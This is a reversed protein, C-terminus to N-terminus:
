PYAGAGHPDFFGVHLDHTYLVLFSAHAFPVGKMTQSGQWPEMEDGPKITYWTPYRGEPGDNDTDYAGEDGKAPLLSGIQHVFVYMVRPLTRKREEAETNVCDQLFKRVSPSAYLVLGRPDASARLFIYYRRDIYEKNQVCLPNWVCTIMWFETMIDELLDGFFHMQWQPELPENTQPLVGLKRLYNIIHYKHLHKAEKAVQSYNFSSEADVDVFSTARSGANAIQQGERYWREPLEVHEEFWERDRFLVVDAATRLFKLDNNCLNKLHELNKISDVVTSPADLSGVIEAFWITYDKEWYSKIVFIHGNELNLVPELQLFFRPTRPLM